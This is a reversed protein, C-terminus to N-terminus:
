DLGIIRSELVMPRLSSRLIIFLCDLTCMLKLEFSGCDLMILDFVFCPASTLRDVMTGEKFVLFILSFCRLNVLIMFFLEHLSESALISLFMTSNFDIVFITVLSSFVDLFYPEFTLRDRLIVSVFKSSSMLWCSPPFVGGALPVRALLKVIIGSFAVPSYFFSERMFELLLLSYPNKAENFCYLASFAYLVLKYFYALDRLLEDFPGAEYFLEM